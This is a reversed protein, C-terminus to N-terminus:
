SLLRMTETRTPWVGTSRCKALENMAAVNQRAAFDLPTSHVQYVAVRYPERKEVAIVHVGFNMDTAVGLVGRYFAFQHLYEYRRADEEFQDLDRCTKLDVIGRRQSLWDIRIQCAHGEYVDRVVAEPIGESLVDFALVHDKVAGAMMEVTAAQSDTLVPKGQEAAWAAFAQTTSGYPKGTKENIPGGVAYGAEYAKRGELILTHAASGLLFDDSEERPVLGMEKRRFLRPCKRFDRLAHSSLYEHARAHYTEAPEETIIKPLPWHTEYSGQGLRVAPEM